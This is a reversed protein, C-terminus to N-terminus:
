SFRVWHRLASDLGDELKLLEPGRASGQAPQEMGVVRQHLAKEECEGLGGRVCSWARGEPGKVTM